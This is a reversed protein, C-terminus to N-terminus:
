RAKLFLNAFRSCPVSVVGFAGAVGGAGAAAGFSGTVGDRLYNRTNAGCAVRIRDTRQAYEIRENRLQSGSAGGNCLLAIVHVYSKM